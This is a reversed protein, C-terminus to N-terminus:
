GSDMIAKTLLQTNKQIKSKPDPIEMLPTGQWVKHGSKEYRCGNQYKGNEIKWGRSEALASLPEDTGPLALFAV